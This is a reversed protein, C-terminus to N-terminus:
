INVTLMIPTNEAALDLYKSLFTQRRMAFKRQLDCQAAEPDLCAQLTSRVKATLDFRNFNDIQKQLAKLNSGKSRGPHHEAHM